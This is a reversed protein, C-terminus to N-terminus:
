KAEGGDSSANNSKATPERLARPLHLGRNLGWGLGWGWVKEGLKNPTGAVVGAEAEFQLAATCM